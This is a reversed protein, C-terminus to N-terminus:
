SESGDARAAAGRARCDRSGPAQATDCRAQYTAGGFSVVDGEYYVGGETYSKVKPFRAPPPAAAGRLVDVAGRLAAVELELAAIKRLQPEVNEALREDLEARRTQRERAIVAGMANVFARDRGDGFLRFDEPPEYLMEAVAGPERPM